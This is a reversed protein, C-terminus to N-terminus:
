PLHMSKMTYSEDRTHIYKDNLSLSDHSNVMNLKEGLELCLGVHKDSVCTHRGPNVVWIGRHFSLVLEQLNGKRQGGCAVM